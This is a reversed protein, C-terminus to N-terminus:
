IVHYLIYDIYCLIIHIHIYIFIYTDCIDSTGYDSHWLPGVRPDHQREELIWKLAAAVGHRATAEAAEAALGQRTHLICVDDHSYRHYTTCGIKSYIM